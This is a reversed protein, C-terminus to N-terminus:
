AGAPAVLVASEAALAASSAKPTAEHEKTWHCRHCMHGGEAPYFMPSYETNCQVCRQDTANKVTAPDLQRAQRENQPNTHPILTDLRRAKRLLPYSHGAAVQKYTRCYLQAITEGTHNLECLSFIRRTDQNHHACSVYPVLVGSAGRFVVSTVDRKSPKVPQMEFGFKFGTKWGCSAHLDINCESCRIVAGERLGCINCMASWRQSPITSVGEVTRLLVSDAYQVDSHFISCLTHVWDQGETAKASRLFGNDRKSAASNLAGRKDATSRPCLMCEFMLSAELTTENLCLDCLWDAATEEDYIAGATAAHVTLACKKCKLVRGPANARKCCQCTPQKGYPPPPTPTSDGSLPGLKQRKANVANLPTGERKETVRKAALPDDRTIRSYGQDGYHRWNLGCVDCLVHSPLGKPAKWWVSSDRTRCSGCFITAPQASEQDFRVVSGEDDSESAHRRPHKPAPPNLLEATRHQLRLQANKWKGFYRVIEPMSRTPVDERVLRLEGGYEHAAINFARTEEDNWERDIWRTETKKWKLVRTPNKLSISTMPQKTIFATSLRFIAETLYDVSHLMDRRSTLTLKRQEVENKAADPMHCVWSLIEITAHNGREAIDEPLKEAINPVVAQFRPGVRTAARPFILDNPDLTDEAVTYQGFYRFPWMKFYHDDAEKDDALSSLREAKKPKPPRGIAKRVPPTDHRVDHADVDEEHRRACTACSWGYGRSPKALLPPQVCAMHFYKKCSDCRVSDTSACWENCTDCLHIVDTLEPVVEKECVVYEYRSCLVEKIKLPLNTVDTSLLVEFDKKIYPDFLKNFYFRDPKKKWAVLDAIKDKHRIYCKARLQTVPVVESFIAALVLRADSVQRDSVDAPRYFWAVRVRSWREKGKGKHVQEGDKPPLFEMIRAIAYPTGDRTDWPPSVYVHDNVHLREGSRLTWYPEMASM